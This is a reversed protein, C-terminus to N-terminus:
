LSESTTIPHISAIQYQALHSYSHKSGPPLYVGVNEQIVKAMETQSITLVKAFSDGHIGLDYVDIFAPGLTKHTPEIIQHTLVYMVNRQEDIQLDSFVKQQAFVNLFNPIVQKM